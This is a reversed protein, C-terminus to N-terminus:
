PILRLTLGKVEVLDMPIGRQGVIELSTIELQLQSDSPVTESASISFQLLVGGSADDAAAVGREMVLRLQTSTLEQVSLRPQEGLLDGAQWRSLRLTQPFTLQLRAHSVRDQIGSIILLVQGEGGSPLEMTEPFLRALVRPPPPPPATLSPPPIDPTPAPSVEVKQPAAPSPTGSIAPNPTVLSSKREAEPTLAPGQPAPPTSKVEPSAAKACALWFGWLVLLVVILFLRKM